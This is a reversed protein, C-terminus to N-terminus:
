KSKARNELMKSSWNISGAVLLAGTATIFMPDPNGSGVRDPRLDLKESGVRDYIPGSGFGSSKQSSGLESGLGSIRWFKSGFGVRSGFIKSLKETFFV